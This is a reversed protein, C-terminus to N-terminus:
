WDGGASSTGGSRQFNKGILNSEQWVTAASSTFTTTMRYCSWWDLTPATKANFMKNVQLRRQDLEISKLKPKSTLCTPSSERM